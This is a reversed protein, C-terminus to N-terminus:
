TTSALKPFCGKLGRAIDIAGDGLRQTSMRYPKISIDTQHIDGGGIDLVSVADYETINKGWPDKVLM